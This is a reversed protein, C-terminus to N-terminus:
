ARKRVAPSLLALLQDGRETLRQLREDVDFFGRQGGM